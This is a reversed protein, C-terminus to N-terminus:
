CDLPPEPSVRRGFSSWDNKWASSLLVAYRLGGEGGGGGGGFFFFFFFFLLYTIESRMENKM